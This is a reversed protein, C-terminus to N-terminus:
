QRGGGVNPLGPKRPRLCGGISTDVVLALTEIMFNSIMYPDQAALRALPRGRYFKSEFM